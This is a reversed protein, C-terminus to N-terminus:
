NARKKGGSVLRKIFVGTRQRKNFNRKNKAPIEAAKESNEEIEKYLNELSNFKLILDIATKEGIGKVGPINDSPDGKLAKFDALKEPTLGQM